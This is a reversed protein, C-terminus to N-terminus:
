FQYGVEVMGLGTHKTNDSVFKYNQTWEYGITGRLWLNNQIQQTMSATWRLREEPKEFTPLVSRIDGSGQNKENRGRIEYAMQLEMDIEKPLVHGYRAYVGLADPGIPHGLLHHRQEFGSIFTGNRYTIETTRVVEISMSGAHSLWLDPWTMGSLNSVDRWGKSCCDEFFFESYIAMHRLKPIELRFDTLFNRNSLNFQNVDRLRRGFVEAIADLIGVEPSGDGGLIISQSYGLELIPLPKIVIREGILYGHPFDRDNDLRSTLFSFQIPGLYKFISPLIVSESNRVQIMDLPTQSGGFILGGSFGHGWQVPIRGIQFELKQHGLKLGVQRLEPEFEDDEEDLNYRLPLRQEMDFSGWDLWRLEVRPEIWGELGGPQFRGEKQELLPNVQVDVELIDNAKSNTVFFGGNAGLQGFSKKEAEKLLGRRSLYKEIDTLDKLARQDDGIKKHAQDLLHRVGWVTLPRISRIDDQFYGRSSLRDIKAYIPDNLPIDNSVQGFVPFIFLVLILILLFKNDKRRVTKVIKGAFAWSFPAPSPKLDLTNGINTEDIKKPTAV